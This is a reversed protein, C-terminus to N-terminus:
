DPYVSQVSKDGIAKVYSISAILEPHALLYLCFAAQM